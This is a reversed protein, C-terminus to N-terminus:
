KITLTNMYLRYYICACKFIAMSARMGKVQCANKKRKMLYTIVYYFISSSICEIIFNSLSIYTVYQICIRARQSCVFEKQNYIHIYIFKIHFTILHSVAGRIKEYKREKKGNKIHFIYLFHISCIHLMCKVYQVGIVPPRFNSKKLQWLM